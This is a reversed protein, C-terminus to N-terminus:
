GNFIKMWLEVERDSLEAEIRKQSEEEVGFFHSIRKLDFCFEISNIIKAGKKKAITKLDKESTVLIVDKYNHFRDLLRIIEEGVPIGEPPYHVCFKASLEECQIEDGSKEGFVVLVNNNKNEQFRKLISILKTKADGDDSSFEPCSSILNAGDIIYPM